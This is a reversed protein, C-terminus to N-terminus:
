LESTWARQQRAAAENEGLMAMALIGLHEVAHYFDLIQIATPFFIRANEWIWAAGNGGEGDGARAQHSRGAVVGRQRPLGGHDRRLHDFRSGAHALWGQRHDNPHLHLRAQVRPHPIHLRTAERSMGRTAGPPLAPRHWRKGCLPHSYAESRFTANAHRSSPDSRPCRPPMMPCWNDTTSCNMSSTARTAPSPM